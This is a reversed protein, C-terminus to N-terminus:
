NGSWAQWRRCITASKQEPTAFNMNGRGGRGGLAALVKEGDHTIDAIIDGTEANRIITGLPVPLILDEGAKGHMDSGKGKEGDPAKYVSKYRFDMLTHRPNIELSIFVLVM